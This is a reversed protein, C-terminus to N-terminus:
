FIIKPPFNRFVEMKVAGINNKKCIKYFNEIDNYEFPFVTNILKKPVGYASLGPLLHNTLNKKSSLNASLYWDHWGHYGCIAINDKKTHARAIRIAISNAEGGTKAYRVMDFGDHMKLLKESLYVEEPCNLSSMNGNEISKIVENNIKNNSYGLINTGVSMTALDIFKKGDLDWVNCGKSKSFYAPWLDPLFMEPRKSLLM